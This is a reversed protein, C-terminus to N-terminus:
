GDQLHLLREAVRGAVGAARQHYDRWYAAYNRKVVEALEANIPIVGCKQTLWDCLPDVLEDEIVHPVQDLFAAMLAIAVGWAATPEPKGDTLERLRRYAAVLEGEAQTSSTLM